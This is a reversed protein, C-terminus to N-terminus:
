LPCSRPWVDQFSSKHLNELKCHHHARPKLQRRPMKIPDAGDQIQYFLPLTPLSPFLSAYFRILPSLSSFTTKEREERGKKSEIGVRQKQSELIAALIGISFIWREGFCLSFTLLNSFTLFDFYQLRQEVFIAKM